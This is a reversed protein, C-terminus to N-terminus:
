RAPVNRRGDIVIKSAAIDAAYLKALRARAHPTLLDDYSPWPGRRPQTPFLQTRYVDDLRLVSDPRNRSDVRGVWESSKM